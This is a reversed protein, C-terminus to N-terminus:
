DAAKAKAIESQFRALGEDFAKAVDTSSGAALAAVAQTLADLQASIAADRKASAAIFAALEKETKRALTPYRMMLGYTVEDGAKYGSGWVKADVATLKIKDGWKMDDELIARAQKVQAETANIEFHMSDIPSSTYDNGWRFIHHGNDAKIDALIRRVAATKAKSFTGKVGRPHKTANLDWATASAHNSITTRSGTVKRSDWSWDDLVKGEIPEVEANFRTILYDAVYSVDANAAAFREGAATFWTLESRTLVPWGNQSHQTM